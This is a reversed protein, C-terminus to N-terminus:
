KTEIHINGFEDKHWNFNHISSLSNLLQDLQDLQFAATISIDSLSPDDIYIISKYYRNLKLFVDKLQTNVFHFRKSRWLAFSEPDILSPLPLVRNKQFYISENMELLRFQNQAAVRVKGEAVNILVGASRKQVEFITGLVKIDVDGSQVYFPIQSNPHIDFMAEGMLLQTHRSSTEVNVLLRSGAGLWVKSGDLLTFQKIEDKATRLELTSVKETELYHAPRELTPLLTIFIGILLSAAVAYWTYLRKNIRPKKNPELLKPQETLTPAYALTRWLLSVKRFAQHNDDSAKLWVKFDQLEAESLQGSNIKTLWFLSQQKTDSIVTKM